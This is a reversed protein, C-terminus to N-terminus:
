RIILLLHSPIPRMPCIPYLCERKSFPFRVSLQKNQCMKDISFGVPLFDRCLITGPVYGNPIVGVLSMGKGLPPPFYWM